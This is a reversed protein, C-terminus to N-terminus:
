GNPSPAARRQNGGQSSNPGRCANWGACRRGRHQRQLHGARDPDTDPQHGSGRDAQAARRTLRFLLLGIKNRIAQQVQQKGARTGVTTVNEKRRFIDLVPDDERPVRPAAGHRGGRHRGRAQDAQRRLTAGATRPRATTSGATTWGRGARPRRRAGQASGRQRAPRPRDGRRPAAKWSSSWRGSTARSATSSSATM